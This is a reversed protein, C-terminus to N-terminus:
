VHSHILFDNYWINISPIVRHLTVGGLLKNYFKYKLFWVTSNYIKYTKLIWALKCKLQINNIMRNM